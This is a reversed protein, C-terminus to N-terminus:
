DNNIVARALLQWNGNKFECLLLDDRGCTTGCTFYEGIIARSNEKNLFIPESFTYVTHTIKFKISVKDTVLKTKLQSYKKRWDTQKLMIPATKCIRIEQPSLFDQISTNPITKESDTILTQRTLANKDYFVAANSKANLYQIRDKKVLWQLLSMTKNRNNTQGLCLASLFISLVVILKKM